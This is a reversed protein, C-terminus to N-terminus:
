ILSRPIPPDRKLIISRANRENITSRADSRDDARVPLMRSKLLFTQSCSPHCCGHLLAPSAGVESQGPEPSTNDPATLVSGKDALAADAIGGYGSQGLALAALLLLTALLRFM